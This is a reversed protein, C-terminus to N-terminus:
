RETTAKDFLEAAKLLDQVRTSEVDAVVKFRDIDIDALAKAARAEAETALGAAQAAQSQKLELDVKITALRIQKEEEAEQAAAEAAQQQSPSMDDPSIIGPPLGLRLRRAIEDAGPWDQAEVIKDAAVAMTQPMANVMNLMSEAAEIRKTVTSPGTVSTVSYKGTTIDIGNENVTSNIVVPDIEDGEEGLIKITRVTDYAFPILDNMVGGSAEIALELNAQYIVTGVEGVRQRAVIAKGSVENSTAGLSAEHINSIDRMDQASTAAENLLGAEIQTPQIRTPVAGAEGNYVLLSDDSLHSKRWQEERGEVAEAAAIWTGKPSMMLKEAIVSRWFNHLRQPDKLFRVLGFRTRDHGVNIEWGPVRFVPVRKIPLEYPGELIDKGTFIYLQAFKRDVERMVPIGFEDTVLRDQFDEIELETVDEVDEGGGEKESNKVLAVIRKVTRMRWMHVIRVQDETIWDSSLDFGLLNSDISADAPEVNPWQERFEARSLTGVLFCYKADAGTPEELAPDWVVSFANNIAKVCINQEFVDDSAYELAIEFSGMGSIVQNELAKNYAIDAKSVKQISRILGQRVKAIDKFADDDPIVKIVTENLRRAGLIQGVFAPLRNFVLTPKKASRRTRKATKDWQDGVMFKADDIAAERNVKDFDLAQQFAKVAWKHFAELDTFDSPKKVKKFQVRADAEDTREIIKGPTEDTM